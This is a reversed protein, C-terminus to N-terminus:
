GPMPHMNHNGHREGQRGGHGEHDGPGGAGMLRQSDLVKRQDTDLAAYLSKVATARKDMEAHRENRMAQMRDIREPTSLRAMEERDPRAAPKGPQMATTFQLWAAEQNPKIKLATKLAAQREAMHKVMREQREGQAKGDAAHVATSIGAGALMLAALLAPAFRHALARHPNHATSTISPM